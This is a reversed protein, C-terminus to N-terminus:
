VVYVPAENRGLRASRAFVDIRRIIRNEPDRSFRVGTINFVGDARGTHSKVIPRPWPRRSGLARHLKELQGIQDLGVGFLQRAHVGEIAALWQALRAEIRRVCRSTEAKIGPQRGFRLALRVFDTVRVNGCFGHAFGDADAALDNGPVVRKEHRGPFECRPEGRSVAADELGRFKGRERCNSKEFQDVFRSKRWSNGLKHETRSIRHARRERSAVTHVFDGEGAAGDRAPLDHYGCGAVQLLDGELEPSFIRVDNKGIGVGVHREFIGHKCNVGPLALDAASSRPQNKVAFQRARKERAERSAAPLITTPSPM